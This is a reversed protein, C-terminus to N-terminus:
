PKPTTDGHAVEEHHQIREELARLRRQLAKNDTELQKLRQDLGDLRQNTRGFMAEVEAFKMSLYKEISVPATLGNTYEVPWDKPLVLRHSGQASVVTDQDDTLSRPSGRPETSEPRNEGWGGPAATVLM